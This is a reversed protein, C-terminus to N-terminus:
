IFYSEYSWFKFHAFSSSNANLDILFSPAGELLPGPVAGHFGIQSGRAHPFRGSVQTGAPEAM